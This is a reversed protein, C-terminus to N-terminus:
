RDANKRERRRTSALVARCLRRYRTDELRNSIPKTCYGSDAPPRSLNAVLNNECPRILPVLQGNITDCPTLEQAVIIPRGADVAPRRTILRSRLWGQDHHPTGSRHLLQRSPIPEDSPPRRNGPKKRGTPNGHQEKRM